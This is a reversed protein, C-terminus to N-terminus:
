KLALFLSCTCYALKQEPGWLFLRLVEIDEPELSDLYNLLASGIKVLGRDDQIETWTYFTPHRSNMDVCCFIYFSVQHSYFADTIPTHPLPQVQQMDFCFSISNPPDEKALKYSADARKRQIRREIMLDSKKKPDKEKRINDKNSRKKVKECVGLMHCLKIDQTLKDPAAYLKRGILRIDALAVTSCKYSATNHNCPRTFRLLGPDKGVYKQQKNLRRKEPTKPKKVRSGTNGEQVSIDIDRDHKNM